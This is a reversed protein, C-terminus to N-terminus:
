KKMKMKRRIADIMDLDDGDIDRSHENSDEPQHMDALIDDDDEKLATDENLHYFYNPHEEANEDLDVMGGDAMMKRKMRIADVIDREDMHGDFPMEDAARDKYLDKMREQHMEMPDNKIYGGEAYKSGPMKDHMHHKKAMKEDIKGGYAKKSKRQISYAIALSQKQPKGAHMEAAVNKGFAKKSKSKILPM